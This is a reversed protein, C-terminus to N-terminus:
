ERVINAICWMAPTTHDKRLTKKHWWQSVPRKFGVTAESKVITLLFMKKNWDFIVSFKGCFKSNVFPAFCYKWLQSVVFFRWLSKTFIKGIHSSPTIKFKSFFKPILLVSCNFQFNPFREGVPNIIPPIYERCTSSKIVTHSLFDEARTSQYNEDAFNGSFAKSKRDSWDLNTQRSNSNEINELSFSSVTLLREFGLM